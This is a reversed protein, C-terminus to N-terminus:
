KNLVRRATPKMGCDDHECAVCKEATLEERRQLVPCATCDIPSTPNFKKGDTKSKM